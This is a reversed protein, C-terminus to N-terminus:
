AGDITAHHLKTLVAFRNDSLGEIVYSEWLPHARDLPRGIIRSVLAALQEDTGPPPVAADRVHYDLDFDPDEIWYPHDLELPVEVVRRRMPELIPLRREVQRRFADYASWGAIDPREFISLGSVHGFSTPTEMYLFNADVGSLQKM